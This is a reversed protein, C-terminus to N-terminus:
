KCVGAKPDEHSQEVCNHISQTIVLTGILAFWFRFSM